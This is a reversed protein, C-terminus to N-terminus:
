DLDCGTEALRVAGDATVVADGEWRSGGVGEEFGGSATVIRMGVELAEDSGRTVWPLAAHYGFGVGRGARHPFQEFGAEEGVDV